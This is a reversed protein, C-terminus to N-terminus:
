NGNLRGTFLFVLRSWFSYKKPFYHYFIPEPYIYYPTEKVQEVKLHMRIEGEFENIEQETIIKGLVLYDERKKDFIMDLLKAQLDSEIVRMNWSTLQAPNYGTLTYKRQIGYDRM